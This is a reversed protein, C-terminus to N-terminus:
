ECPPNGPRAKDETDETDTPPTGGSRYDLMEDAPVGARRNIRDGIRLARGLLPISLFREYIERNSRGRRHARDTAFIILPALLVGIAIWLLPSSNSREDKLGFILLSAAVLSMAPLVLRLWRQDARRFPMLFTFESRM